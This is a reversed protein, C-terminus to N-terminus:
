KAIIWYLDKLVQKLVGLSEISLRIDDVWRSVPHWYTEDWYAVAKLGPKSKITKFAKEIWKPQDNKSPTGFESLMIPKDKHKYRFYYYPKSILESLDRYGHYQQSVEWNYASFGIWDVYQDGPYYEELPFDVHYEIVWTAYENARGDEFIQWIHKWAELFSDPQNCWWWLPDKGRYNMEWMTTIFFGGYKEGFKIAEDAFKRIVNDSDGSVINKFNYPADIVLFPIVKRRAIEESQEFVYKWSVFGYRLWVISPRKGLKEEYSDINDRVGRWISRGIGFYCGNEPPQIKHGKLPPYITPTKEIGITACGILTEKLTLGTSVVLIAKGFDKLFNRRSLGKINQLIEM